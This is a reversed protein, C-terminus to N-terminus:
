MPAAGAGTRRLTWDTGERRVDLYAMGTRGDPLVVRVPGHAGCDASFGEPASAAPFSTAGTWYRVGAEPPEETLTVSPYNIGGITAPGSYRFRETM